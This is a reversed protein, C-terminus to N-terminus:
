ADTGKYMDSVTTEARVAEPHYHVGAAPVSTDLEELRRLDMETALLPM